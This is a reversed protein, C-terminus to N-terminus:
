FFRVYLQGRILAMALRKASEYGCYEDFQVSSVVGEPGIVSALQGKM